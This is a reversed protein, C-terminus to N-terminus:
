QGTTLIIKKDIMDLIEICFKEFFNVQVHIIDYDKILSLNNTTLIDNKNLPININWEKTENGYYHDSLFYLSFPNIINELINENNKLKELLIDFYM